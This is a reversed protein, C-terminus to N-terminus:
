EGRGMRKDLWNDIESKEWARVGLSIMYGAPFTGETIKQYIYARSLACYETVQRMRMMRNQLITEKTM